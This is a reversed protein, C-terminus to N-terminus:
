AAFGRSQAVQDSGKDIIQNGDSFSNDIFAETQAAPPAQPGPATM